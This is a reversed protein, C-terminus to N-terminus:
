NHAVRYHFLTCHMLFYVKKTAVSFVIFCCVYAPLDGVFFSHMEIFLQSLFERKYEIKKMEIEREGRPLQMNLVYIFRLFTYTTRTADDDDKSSKM